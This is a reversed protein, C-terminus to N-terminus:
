SEDNRKYYDTIEKSFFYWYFSSVLMATIVWNIIYSIAFKDNETDKDSLALTALFLAWLMNAAVLILLSIRGEKDGIFAWFAAGATFVCLGLSVVVIPFPVEGNEARVAIFYNIFQFLGFRLFILFTCVYVGIPKQIERKWENEM